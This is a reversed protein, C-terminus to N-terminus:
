LLPPRSKVENKSNEPGKKCADFHTKERLVQVATVAVGQLEGQIEHWLTDPTRFLRVPYPTEHRLEQRYGKSNQLYFPVHRSCPGPVRHLSRGDCEKESRKSQKSLANRFLRKMGFNRPTNRKQEPPSFSRVQSCLARVM